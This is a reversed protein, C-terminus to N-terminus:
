PGRNQVPHVIRRSEAPTHGEHGKRRDAAFLAALAANRRHGKDGPTAAAQDVPRALRAPGRLLRDWARGFQAGPATDRFRYAGKRSMGVSAAAATVSRTKALASLFAIQRDLAWGDHRPAPRNSVPPTPASDM